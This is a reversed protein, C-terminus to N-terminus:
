IDLAKDTNTISTEEITINGKKIALKIAEDLKQLSVVYGSLTSDEDYTKSNKVGGNGAILVSDSIRLCYLRLKNTEIPLACVRDKM